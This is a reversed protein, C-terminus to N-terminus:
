DLNLKEHSQAFVSLGRTLLSSFPVEYFDGFQCFFADDRVKPTAIQQVSYGWVALGGIATACFYFKIFNGL